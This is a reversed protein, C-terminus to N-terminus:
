HGNGSTPTELIAAYLSQCDVPASTEMSRNASIGILIANLGDMYGAAQGLADAPTEPLFLHRLMIPDSGAHSGEAAEISVEYPVGFMPLVRLSYTERNAEAAAPTDRGQIIHCGQNVVLEIRGRDGTIAVQFGECPAYAVLSYNMLVGSRYRVLVGLTDETTIGDGFVNQDRLYGSEAEADLYLGRLMDQSEKNAQADDLQLAFPDDQAKPQGTYREYPYHEGRAEANQRGYFHLGGMAMVTQPASGLWWNMLDFHHTSKHILLGGSKDKQRHWRRFYDAGHSTNLMWRFDAALPRGVVGQMMLERLKAAFPIYRCNFTIRLSRGTRRMAQFIAAAKDEDITLPKECIVDCGLEMAQIIYEHHTSDITTVIVIDPRAERIMRGFDDAKFTPVPQGSFRQAIRRNHWDMRVQSIDCLGVLAAHERFPGALADIYLM